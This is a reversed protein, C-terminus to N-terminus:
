FATTPVAQGGSAMTHRLGVPSSALCLRLSKVASVHRSLMEPSQYGTRLSPHAMTFASAVALTGDTGIRMPVDKLFAGYFSLDYRADPVELCFVFSSAATMPENWPSRPPIQSYPILEGQSTARLKGSELVFDQWM